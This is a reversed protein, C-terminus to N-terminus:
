LNRYLKGIEPSGKKGRSNDANTSPKTNLLMSQYCKKLAASPIILGMTRSFRAIYIGVFEGEKNFVPTGADKAFLPLANRIALPYPARHKSITSKDKLPGITRKKAVVRAEDTAINWIQRGRQDKALLLDGPQVPQKLPSWDVPQLTAKEPTELLALDWTADHALTKIPLVNNRSHLEFSGVKKPLLSNKVLIHHKSVITGYAIRKKGSYIPIRQSGTQTLKPLKKLITPDDIGMSIPQKRTLAIAVLPMSNLMKQESLEITGDKEKLTQILDIVPGYQVKIRRLLEDQVKAISEKNLNIKLFEPGDPAKEKDGWCEKKLLKEKDLYYQDIAAFINLGYISAASSDLGILKGDMSFLPGGSDGPQINCDSYLYYPKGRNISHTTIRGIRVQAPRGKLIGAPHAMTFCFDGTLNATQALKCFPLPKKDTKIVQLLAFDTERNLGLLSAKLESGDELTIKFEYEKEVGRM